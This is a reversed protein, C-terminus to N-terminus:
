RGVCRITNLATLRDGPSPSIQGTASYFLWALTRNNSVVTATWEQAVGGQAGMDPMVNRIGDINAQEYDNLTPMRWKVGPTSYSGLAGKAPDYTYSGSTSAIWNETGLFPALVEACASQVNATCDVGGANEVNGSGQCWNATGLNSSWLLGTRQDQWVEKSSVQTVLNWNSEGSTGNTLGAWKAVTGNITACDAIKAAITQPTSGCTQFAAHQALTIPVIATCGNTCTADVDTTNYGDDSTAVAPVEAYNTPLTPTLSGAYTVTEAAQTLQTSGVTRFINSYACSGYGLRGFITTGQCINEFTFSSGLDVTVGAYQIQSDIPFTHQTASTENIASVTFYNSRVVTICGALLLVSGTVLLAACPRDLKVKVKVKDLTNNHLAKALNSPM